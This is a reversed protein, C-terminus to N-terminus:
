RWRAELELVGRRGSEYIGSGHTKYLRDGLNELTLNLALAESFRYRSRLSLVGYGPTGGEPIRSDALDGPSLRDQRDAWSFVPTLQLQRYSFQTTVTGRLPPIRTMPVDQDTQQGFTWAVDANLRFWTGKQHSVGMSVGEVRAKGVNDILFVPEGELTDSGQWSGRVRDMLGRYLATYLSAELTTRGRFYRGTLQYDWVEEPELNPNPVDYGSNSPGVAMADELNPARFGQSAGLSLFFTENGRSIAVSPTLQEYSESIRGLPADLSGSLHFTAQRLGLDLATGETLEVEMMGFLGLGRYAADDPFKGAEATVVHTDLQVRQGASDVTEWVADMGYVWQFRGAVKTFSANLQLADLNTETELRLNPRSVAVRQTGEEQTLYAFGVEAHDMLGSDVQSELRVGHLTQVQPDYNWVLDRGSLIRDTRPVETARSVMNLFRLQRGESLAYSLNLSGDWSDFGTAVQTGVPDAAELDEYGNVRYHSQLALDGWRGNGSVRHSQTAEASSVSGRYQVSPKELAAPDQTRLHVTGGLGDSGYSVGSPGSLIEVQELLDSPVTNLYQNLGLRYISNNLGSVM